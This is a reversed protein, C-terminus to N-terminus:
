VLFRVIYKLMLVVVIEFLFANWYSAHRGSCHGGSSTVIPPTQGVGRSASGVRGLHLGGESAPGGIRGGGVIFLIDCAESFM